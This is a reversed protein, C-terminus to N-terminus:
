ARAKGKVRAANQCGYRVILFPHGVDVGGRLGQPFGGVARRVAGEGAVADVVTARRHSTRPVLCPRLAALSSPPARHAHM